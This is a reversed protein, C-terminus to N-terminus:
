LHLPEVEGLRVMIVQVPRGLHELEAAVVLLTHLEAAVRVVMIEKDALVM